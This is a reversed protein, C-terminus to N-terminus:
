KVRRLKSKARRPVTKQPKTVTQVSALEVARAMDATVTQQYIELLVTVDKWGGIKQVDAIVGDGGARIMRTSGTTRTAWHFTLGHAKRGYPVPPVADRCARYLAKIYGRARAQDDKAHRRHPFYYTQADPDKPDEPPLPIADLAQRLASSVPVTLPVGNKPYRIKLTAGADDTRKVDLIDGLRVLGDRGMLYIARDGPHTFAQLVRAEEELSTLRQEVPTTVLDKFGWLPSQPILKADVAATLAQQLVAIERNVTRPSPCPFTHAKGKPGGYHKVKTPTVLRTERWSEARAIWEAAPASIALDGFGIILRPLIQQERYAGRHKPIKTTAYTEAWTTFLVIEPDIPLDASRKARNLVHTALIQDATERNVKRQKATVGIPIKTNIPNTGKGAPVGPIWIWLNPSGPRTLVAM